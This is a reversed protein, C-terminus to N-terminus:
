LNRIGNRCCKNKVSNEIFVDYYNRSGKTCALISEFCISSNRRKNNKIAFNYRKIYDRIASIYGAFNLFNINLDYKENFRAHTLYQGDEDFFHSLCILDRNLLLKPAIYTKGILIRRNYCLPEALLEYSNKPECKYFFLKYSHFVNTWFTNYKTFKLVFEPGQRGFLPWQHFNTLFIHKWKHNSMEAKRVWSLKLSLVFIKIDPFGIGGKKVSKHVNKRCIKDRKNNWVFKYCM